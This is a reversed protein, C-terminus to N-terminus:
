GRQGILRFSWWAPLFASLLAAALWPAAVALGSEAVARSVVELDPRPAALLGAVTVAACVSLGTALRRWPFALAEREGAAHRVCVMVRGTFGPSPTVGPDNRLASEIERDLM